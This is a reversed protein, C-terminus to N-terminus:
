PSSIAIALVSNRRLPVSLIPRWICVQILIGLPQFITAACTLRITYAPLSGRFGSKHAAARSRSKLVILESVSKRNSLKLPCKGKRATRFGGMHIQRLFSMLNVAASAAFFLCFFGATLGLTSKVELNGTKTQSPPQRIRSLAPRRTVLRTQSPVSVPFRSAAHPALPDQSPFAGQSTQALAWRALRTGKAKSQGLLSQGEGFIQM